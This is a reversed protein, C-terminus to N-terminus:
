LFTYCINKGNDILENDLKIECVTKRDSFVLDQPKHEKSIDEFTKAFSTKMTGNSAYISFTSYEESFVFERKLKRIGYCNEFNIKLTSM